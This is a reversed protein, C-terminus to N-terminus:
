KLSKPCNKLPRTSFSVSKFATSKWVEGTDRLRALNDVIELKFYRADTRLEDRYAALTAEDPLDDLDYDFRNVGLQDVGFEKKIEAVREDIEDYIENATKKLKAIALVASLEPKLKAQESALEDLNAMANKTM